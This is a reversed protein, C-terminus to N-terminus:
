QDEFGYWSSITELPVRSSRFENV